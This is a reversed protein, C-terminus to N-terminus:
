LLIGSAPYKIFFLFKNLESNQLDLLMTSANAQNKQHGEPQMVVHHITDHQPCTCPLSIVHYSLFSYLALQFLWGM